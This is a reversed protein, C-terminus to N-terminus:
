QKKETHEKHALAIQEAVKMLEPLMAVPFVLRHSIRRVEADDEPDVGVTRYCDMKFVGGSTFAGMIGDFFLEDYPMPNKALKVKKKKGEEPTGTIPTTESM